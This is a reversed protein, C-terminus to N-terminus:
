IEAQWNPLASVAYQYDRNSRVTDTLTVVSLTAWSQTWQYGQEIKFRDLRYCRSRYEQSHSGGLKMRQQKGPPVFGDSLERMEILKNRLLM